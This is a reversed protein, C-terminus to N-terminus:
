NESKEHRWDKVPHDRPGAPDVPLFAPVGESHDEMDGVYPANQSDDQQGDATEEPLVEEQGEVTDLIDKNEEM